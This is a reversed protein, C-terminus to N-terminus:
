LRQHPLCGQRQKNTTTNRYSLDQFYPQYTMPYIYKFNQCLQWTITLIRLELCSQFATKNETKRQILPLQFTKTKIDVFEPKTKKQLHEKLRLTQLVPIIEIM